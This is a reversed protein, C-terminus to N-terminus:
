YFEQVPEVLPAGLTAANVHQAPVYFTALAPEPAAAAQATAGPERPHGTFAAVSMIGLFMLAVVATIIYRM